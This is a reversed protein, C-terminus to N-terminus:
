DFAASVMIYPQSQLLINTEIRFHSQPRRQQAFFFHLSYAEGDVLGLRNLDVFQDHAAHIGILDTVLRGDIFLWVTDTGEFKFNQGASADYVFQTEIEFTFHFNHDPVGGPNGFLRGDIPFFGGLSAYYPDLTDDFLYMGDDQRVLTLTLPESINYVLVDNFWQNFTAASTIGGTSSVSFSGATDDLDEDYLLYCIQRSQSDRWQQAVKAGNGAFVPKGDAGITAALNGSYRGLGQLPMSEFDPHGGPATAERFDRVIGTLLIAPPPPADAPHDAVAPPASGFCGMFCLLAYAHALYTRTM